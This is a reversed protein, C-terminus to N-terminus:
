LATTVSLEDGCTVCFETVFVMTTYGGTFAITEGDLAEIFLPWDTVSVTM